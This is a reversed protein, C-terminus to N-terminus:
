QGTWDYSRVPDPDFINADGTRILWLIDARRIQWIKKQERNFFYYEDGERHILMLPRDLRLPDDPRNDRLHVEVTPYSKPILLIGYNVPLYLLQLIVLLLASFSFVSRWPAKVPEGSKRGSQHRGHELLVFVFVSLIALGLLGAFHRQRQNASQPATDVLWAYAPDPTSFLWDTKEVIELSYSFFLVLLALNFVVQM